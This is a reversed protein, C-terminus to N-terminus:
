LLEVTIYIEFEYGYKIISHQLKKYYKPNSFVSGITLLIDSIGNRIENFANQKMEAIVYKFIDIMQDTNFPSHHHYSQHKWYTAMTSIHIEHEDTRYKFDISKDLQVIAEDCHSFVIDIFNDSM